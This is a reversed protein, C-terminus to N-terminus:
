GDNVNAYRIVRDTENVVTIEVWIVRANSMLTEVEPKVKQVWEIAIINGPKVLEDFGLAALDASSHFRWTDIHYLRGSAIPYERMLMYTPSPVNELVGLAKALGQVFHTKGAGLEGQM